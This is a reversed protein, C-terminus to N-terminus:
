CYSKCGQWLCLYYLNRLNGRIVYEVVSTFIYFATGVGCLILVSSFMKGALSLTHVEGYGVTSITIITMYLADLLPWGEILAYGITGMVLIAILVLFLKLFRSKERV